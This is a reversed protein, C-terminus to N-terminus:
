NNEHTKMSEVDMWHAENTYTMFRWIIFHQHDKNLQIEEAADNLGEITAERLDPRTMMVLLGALMNLTDAVGNEELKELVKESPRLNNILIQAAAKDRKIREEKSEKLKM